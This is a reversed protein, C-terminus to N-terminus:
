SEHQRFSLRGCTALRKTQPFYMFLGDDAFSGGVIELSYNVGLKKVPPAGAALYSTLDARFQALPYPRFQESSPDHQFRKSQRQWCMERLLDFVLVGDGPKTGLSELCKWVLEVFDDPKPIAKTLRELEARAEMVLTEASLPPALARGNITAKDKEEDIKVFVVEEIVPEPWDGVIKWGLHQAGQEVRLRRSGREATRWKSITETLKGIYKPSESTLEVLQSSVKEATRAFDTTALRNVAGHKQADTVAKRLTNVQRHLADM